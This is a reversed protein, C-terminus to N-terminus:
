IGYFKGEANLAHYAARSMVELYFNLGERRFAVCLDNNTGERHYVHYIFPFGRAVEYPCLVIVTKAGENTYKAFFTDYDKERLGPPIERNPLLSGEKKDDKFAAHEIYKTFVEKWTGENPVVLTVNSCGFFRAGFGPVAIETKNNEGQFVPHVYLLSPFGNLEQNM